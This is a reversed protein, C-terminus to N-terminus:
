KQKKIIEVKNITHAYCNTEQNFKILVNDIGIPKCYVQWSDPYNNYHSTNSGGGYKANVVVFDKWNNKYKFKTTHHSTPGDDITYYKVSNNKHIKLNEDNYVHNFYKDRCLILNNLSEHYFHEGIELKIDM